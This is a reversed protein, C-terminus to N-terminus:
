AQHNIVMSNEPVEDLLDVVVEETLEGTYSYFKVTIGLDTEKIIWLTASGGSNITM